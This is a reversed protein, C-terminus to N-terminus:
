GKGTFVVGPEEVALFGARTMESGFLRTQVLGM